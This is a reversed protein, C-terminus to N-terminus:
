NRLGKYLDNIPQTIVKQVEEVTNYLGQEAELLKLIQPDKQVQENLNKYEEQMDQTLEQGQSQVNMITNQMKDMKKFLDSSEANNKVGDIAVQLTKFEDIEQLDSALQNTADYINVM